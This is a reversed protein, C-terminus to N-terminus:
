PDGRYEDWALPDNQSDGPTWQLTHFIKGAGASHYGHNSFHKSLVLADSLIPSEHRWRPGHAGFLNRYIGSKVPHVGTMVAVRSPHCAPAACHANAFTVSQKALREFNPTIVGPHKALPSIYNNLDDVSIFLVNPKAEKGLAGM